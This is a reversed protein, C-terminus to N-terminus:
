RARQRTWRSPSRTRSSSPPRWPPSPSCRCPSSRRRRRRRHHAAARPGAGGAPAAVLARRPGQPDADRHAPLLGRHAVASIALASSSSPSRCRTAPWAASSRTSRGTTCTCGTPAPASGCCSPTGLLRGAHAGRHTVAAIVALTALGTVFSGAASCGRTPARRPSSTCTGACRPSGPSASARRGRRPAPGQPADPRADAGGAALGHRLGRRAAARDRAHADVLYLTDTKSICRGAVQWYADPTASCSEIPGPYYLLAM